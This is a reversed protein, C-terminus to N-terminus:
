FKFPSLSEPMKFIFTEMLIIPKRPLKVSRPYKCLNDKTLFFSITIWCVYYLLFVLGSVRVLVNNIRLGIGLEILGIGLEPLGTGLEILGIGLEGFQRQVHYHIFHRTVDIIFSILLGKKLSKKSLANRAREESNWPARCFFLSGPNKKLILIMLTM